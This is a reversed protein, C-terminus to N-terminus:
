EYPIIANYVGMCGGDFVGLIVKRKAIHEAVSRGIREASDPIQCSHLSRVHSSDHLVRGGHLWVKLRDLFYEDTFDKSWLTDYQVGAKTLSGNLNLMGVLGPWQGSWNAATLIAGRHHILGGLVHHSYQWVAEIVIVPADSPIQQFVELGYRQSDIFGHGKEASVPHARVVDFGLKQVARTFAAEASQQAPWCVQNASLRLDGSAVMYISSSM